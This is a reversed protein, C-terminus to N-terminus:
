QGTVRASQEQQPEFGSSGAASSSSSTSSPLASQAAAAKAALQAPVQAVSQVAEKAANVDDYFDGLSQYQLVRWAVTAEIGVVGIFRFFVHYNFISLAALAAAASTYVVNTPKSLLAAADEAVAEVADEVVGLPNVDYEAKSEAIDLGSSKWARFGGEVIHARRVGAASAARAVAKGLEGRDDMIIVRTNGRRRALSAIQAGLVDVALSDANKVRRAVSPLLKSFPLALGKGRAGRKLEPVGSDIRQRESRIDVLLADQSKLVELAKPASFPGAYGAFNASWSLIIPLGIGVAVAVGGAKPDSAIFQAAQAAASATASAGAALTDRMPPPLTNVVGSVQSEISGILSSTAATATGQAQNILGNTGSVLADVQGTLASTATSVAATASQVGDGVVSTVAGVAETAAASAASAAAAAGETLDKTAGELPASVNIDLDVNPLSSPLSVSPLSFSEAAKQLSDKQAQVQDLVSGLDVKPLEFEVRPLSPPAPRSTAQEIAAQKAEIQKLVIDM